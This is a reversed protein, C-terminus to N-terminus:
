QARQALDFLVFAVGRELREICHELRKAHPHANHRQTTPSDPRGATMGHWGQVRSTILKGYQGDARPEAHAQRSPPYSADRILQM